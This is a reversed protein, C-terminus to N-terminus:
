TCRCGWRPPVIGMWLREGWVAHVRPDEPHPPSPGERMLNYACM